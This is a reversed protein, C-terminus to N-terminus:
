HHDDHHHHHLDEEVIAHVAHERVLNISREAEEKTRFDEAHCLIEGNPARLHWHFHGHDDQHVVFRNSM